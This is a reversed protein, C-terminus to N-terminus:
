WLYDDIRKNLDDSPEAYDEEEDAEKELMCSLYEVENAIKRLLCEESTGDWWECNEEECEVLQKFAISLLPCIRGSEEMLVM